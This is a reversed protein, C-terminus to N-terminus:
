LIIYRKSKKIIADYEKALSFNDAASKAIQTLGNQLTKEFLRGEGTVAGRLAVTNMGDLGASKALADLGEALYGASIDFGPKRHDPPNGHESSSFEIDYETNGGDNGFYLSAFTAAEASNYEAEFTQRMLLIGTADQRYATSYDTQLFRHEKGSPNIIYRTFSEGSVSKLYEYRATFDGGPTSLLSYAERVVTEAGASYSFSTRCLTGAGKRLVSLEKSTENYSLRYLDNGGKLRVWKDFVAINEFIFKMEAKISPESFCPLLSVQAAEAPMVFFDANDAYFAAASEPMLGTEPAYRANETRLLGIQAYLRHNRALQRMDIYYSGWVGSLLLALVLAVVSVRPLALRKFRGKLRQNIYYKYLFFIAFFLAAGGFVVTLSIILIDTYRWM